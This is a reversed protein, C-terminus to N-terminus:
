DDNLSVWGMIRLDKSLLVNSGFASNKGSQQWRHFYIHTMYLVRPSYFMHHIFTHRTYFAHHIFCTIFLHTDHIFRTTFLVHSSYIHTTYLRTTYLVHPSYFTHHVLILTYHIFMHICQLKEM